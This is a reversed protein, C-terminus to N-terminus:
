HQSAAPTASALGQLAIDFGENVAAFLLAGILTKKSVKEKGPLQYQPEPQAPKEVVVPEEHMVPMEGLSQGESM